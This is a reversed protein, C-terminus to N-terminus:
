QMSILQFVHSHEEIYSKLENLSKFLKKYEYGNDINELKIHLPDNTVRYAIKGLLGGSKAIVLDGVEVNMKENVQIM